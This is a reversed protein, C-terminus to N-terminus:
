PPIYESPSGLDEHMASQKTAERVLFDHLWELARMMEKDAADDLRSAIRYMRAHESDPGFEEAFVRVLENESLLARRRLSSCVVATSAAVRCAMTRLNDRDQQMYFNKARGLDEVIDELGDRVANRWCEDPISEALGRLRAFAESPDHIPVLQVLAGIAFALNRNPELLEKRWSGETRMHVGFLCGNVVFVHSRLDSGERVLVQFDIDSHELDDGRAVSGTVGTAVIEEPHKDILKESVIRCAMMRQHHDM